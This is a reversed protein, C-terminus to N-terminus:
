ESMHFRSTTQVGVLQWAGEVHGAFYLIERSQGSIEWSLQQDFRYGSAARFQPRHARPGGILASLVVERVTRDLPQGLWEQVRSRPRKFWVYGALAEDAGEGTLAVINGAARNARALEIMCCCATDVVPGENAEILAPLAASLDDQTINVVRNRSGFFAASQAAKHREDAPGANDLGITFSPIPRGLEQTSLALVATSDLGGSLYCSVPVESVLRRRVAARLLAELEDAADAPNQYRREDGRDPFDLDWYQHDAVAGDQVKLYHGPPIQRIGKFCTRESPMSYFNFVFDIGRVDPRPDILGSALLGKVESAWLLWGDSQAM